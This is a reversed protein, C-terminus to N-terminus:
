IVGGKIMESILKLSEWDMEMLEEILIDDNEEFQWIQAETYKMEGNIKSDFIQEEAYKGYNDDSLLNEAKQSDPKEESCISPPM